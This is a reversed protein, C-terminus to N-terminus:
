IHILSLIEVTEVTGDNDLDARVSDIIDIPTPTDASRSCGAVSCIAFLVCALRVILRGPTSQWEHYRLQAGFPSLRAGFCLETRGM